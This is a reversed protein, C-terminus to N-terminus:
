RSGPPTRRDRRGARPRDGAGGGPDGGRPRLDRGRRRRRRRPPGPRPRRPAAPDPPVGRAARRGGRRRAARRGADDARPDAGVATLMAERVAYAAPRTSGLTPDTLERWHDPHRVLHHTLATSAGLVRACGCRPARTTPSRPSCRPARATAREDLADVLRLLGELAADPDARRPSSTPSRSAPTASGSSARAGRGARRRLRHARLGGLHDDACEGAIAAFRALLPKGTRRSPPEPRRSTPSCSTRTSASRSSTTATTERGLATVVDTDVEPHAQIGWRERDSAPRGAGRRRPDAGARRWRDPLAVVVDNNWHIAVEDGTRAASGRRRRRRGRELRGAAARRDPRAPQARGRRRARGRGGPPGPLDRAAPDRRRGRRPDRGQAAGAVARPRRRQAGM